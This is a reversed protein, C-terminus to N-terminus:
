NLNGFSLSIFHELFTEFFMKGIQTGTEVMSVREFRSLDMIKYVSVFCYFNRHM